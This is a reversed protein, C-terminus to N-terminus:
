PRTEGLFFFGELGTHMGCSRWRRRQWACVRMSAYSSVTCIPAAKSMQTQSLRIADSDNTLGHKIDHKIEHLMAAIDALKDDTSTAQM